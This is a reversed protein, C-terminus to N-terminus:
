NYWGPNQTINPNQDTVTLPYPFLENKGEKFGVEVGNDMAEHTHVMYFRSNAENGNEWIIDVDDAKPARFLKDYLHPTHHGAQKLRALGEADKWRLIDQFRCGEFWLEFAKEKKLVEMNVEASVPAGAREQIKNIYKKAEAVDNTMLCAEAYNLLVEAYRMVIINNLRINNGHKGGNVDVCDSGRMIHKLPLWFSQGYLGQSVEEIGVEKSNMLEEKSMANLKPDSYDMGKVGSTHYVADDIHMLTADFRPSHGENAFFADGFWKPVGISGWGDEGGCYERAPNTVFNGARWNMADAEMWTSHQMYGQGSGFSWDGVASNYELNAEFVKEANCDGEIHFLNAYESGPVLDYKDSKIVEALANKAETYKKAFLYAKGALAYAFGTTVRVAGNKDSKSARTTLANSKIADLCEQAVWLYYEEQTKENNTPIADGPLLHDIFPPQGWYMALQFYNYARLVKAEAIAQKKFDSDGDKFKEIVLNCQYISLYLGKYLADPAEPNTEVRFENIAGGWEHDGYNGSAYYVDDGPHNAMVKAPTYIAPGLSTRGVTQILFSEYASALAKECDADTQYFASSNIAGQQDIDLKDECSTFAVTTAIALM